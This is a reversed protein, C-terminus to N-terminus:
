TARLRGLSEVAAALAAPDVPKPLHLQFGSEIALRRDEERALATLAAAPISAFQADMARLRRILSYGDEGPMGIDALLVDVRTRRLIDLAQPVSEAMHVIARRRALNAAVVERSPRDDDVVLVCIGDLSVGGALGPQPSEAVAAFPQVPEGTVAIIPLRVTFTAGLGEGQSAATISGGHAEVIHKVISLGLGLGGHRRTTTADAQRFAEFVWPIFEPPMGVGNDSVVLEAVSNLRTVSVRVAGGDPTFKVANSLLNWAIQQLRAADGYIPGVANDTTFTIRLDKADAAAQVVELAERVVQELDVISRELRLKGTTIRAVDLLEDILRAQRRSNSYISEFARLRDAEGLMGSRLMDSWGVIANLPTRLEHSVIALFQDKLRSAEEASARATRERELLQKRGQELHTMEVVTSALREKEEALAQEARRAAQLAEVTERHLRQMESTHRRQDELRGVFVQYTRYTLYVPAIMLVAKWHEGRAVVVAAAAGATGAVMFSASSWLFDDRWVKWWGRGTSAAIAGAILGTNIVFYTAIAAVLPRVLPTFERPALPGGLAVFVAGTAAMTLAEAAMSFATRYVPYPRRVKVTCQTWVGAVAVVVAQEPGLLLLAMLDAAYSVSLTSGSALPIPLNVKWVSTLFSIVLLVTFLGPQPFTRPLLAVLAALGGLMVLTVYVQAIRPLSQWTLNPKPAVAAQDITEASSHGGSSGVLVTTSVM